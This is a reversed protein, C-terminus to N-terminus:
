KRAYAATKVSRVVLVVFEPGTHAIAAHGIPAAATLDTAPFQVIGGPPVTESLLPTGYNQADLVEFPDGVALGVKTLDIPVPTRKEWNYIVIHGRGPEYRNPRYRVVLGKPREEQYKNTPYTQPLTGFRYEGFLTNNEVRAKCKELILPTSGVLYNDTITASECGNGYGVFTQAGGYTANGSVILNAAPVSGGVLVDRTFGGRGPLGNNFAINGEITLNNVAWTDSSLALIGHGYQNFIINDAIIQRAAQNQTEIGNGNSTEPGDWGNNSIINGYLEPGVAEHPVQIGRALDHIVLGILKVGAGRVVVGTGRRLDGPWAVPEASTRRPDSNTIEFGWLWVHDTNVSIAPEASPASDIVAREGAYQRVTVPADPKGSIGTTFTGAYVGGRLWITDCAKAPGAASLATPLDLPQDLTGEAEATGNPAVYFSRAGACVASAAMGAKSDGSPTETDSSARQCGAAMLLVTTWVGARMLPGLGPRMLREVASDHNNRTMHKHLTM